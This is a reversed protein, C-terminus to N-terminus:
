IRLRRIITNNDPEMGSGLIIHDPRVYDCVFSFTNDYARLNKNLKTQWLTKM